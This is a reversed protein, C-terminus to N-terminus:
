QKKKKFKLNSACIELIPLDFFFNAVIFCCFDIYTILSVINRLKNSFTWNFHLIM